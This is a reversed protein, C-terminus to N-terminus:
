TGEKTPLYSIEHREAREVCERCLTENPEPPREYSGHKKACLAQGAARTLRGAKFWELVHIHVNGRAAGRSGEWVQSRPVHYRLEVAVSM